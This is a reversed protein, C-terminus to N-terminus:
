QWRATSEDSFDPCDIEGNCLKDKSICHAVTNCKFHDKNDHVHIMFM